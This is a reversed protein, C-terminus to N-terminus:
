GLTENLAKNIVFCGSATNAFGDPIIIDEIRCQMYELSEPWKNKTSPDIIKKECQQLYYN